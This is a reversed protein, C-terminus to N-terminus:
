RPVLELTIVSHVTNILNVAQGDPGNMAMKMPLDATATSSQLRGKSVDFTMEGTGNADGLTIKMPIGGAPAEAAQKTATAIAIRAMAAGGTTEVGSLTSTRTTTLTGVIPQTNEFTSTWSEGKTVPREPFVAFSQGVTRRMSDDSMSAKITQLVPDAEAGAPLAATMKEIVRGMGEVKVVDGNPRFTVNVSEGIMATMMTAVRAMTPDSPRDKASSDFVAPGAPTTIEMRLAEFTQRVTANGDGAVEMVRLVMTQTMTQEVTQTDAGPIGTVTASVKQTVRYRDEQGPTWSYRLTTGQGAASVLPLVVVAACTVVALRVRM